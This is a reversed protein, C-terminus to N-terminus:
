AEGTLFRLISEESFVRQGNSLRYVTLTSGGIVLDGQHTAFPMAPDITEATEAAVGSDTLPRWTVADLMKDVPTM